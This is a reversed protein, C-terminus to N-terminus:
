PKTGGPPPGDDDDPPPKGGQHRGGRGDGDDDPPTPPSPPLEPDRQSELWQVAALLLAAEADLDTVGPRVHPLLAALEGDRELGDLWGGAEPPLRLRQRLVDLAERRAAPRQADRVLRRYSPISKYRGYRRSDRRPPLLHGGEGNEREVAEPTRDDALRGVAPRPRAAPAPSSPRLPVVPARGFVLLILTLLQLFVSTAPDSMARRRRQQRQHRWRDRCTRRRDKRPPQRPHQAPM